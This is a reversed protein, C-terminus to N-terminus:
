FSKGSLLLKNDFTYNVRGFVSFMKELDKYSGTKPGDLAADLQEFYQGGGMMLVNNKTGWLRTYYIDSFSTGAVAAIDHKGFKKNFELTNDYVMASSRAMNKNLSSPDLPQNYSWNGEKRLSMHQDSSQDFGVNFRYKIMKNFELEAFVNGRVRLNENKVEELHEKAIPNVGFTVDRTGSGYGFGGPNSEDYVPITPLMRYVDIVPNTSLEDVKYNSLIINEGIRVTVKDGFDRHASTNSRLAVRNSSTGITTGSNSQYNGSLFYTGSKGGGSLSLNYDQLIGTKFTEDQWDTNADFHNAPTRNANAFALDNLAIWQDRDTLNYRPLWQMTTKASVDIKMDGEVGKKTTIIIVGNAARSGYIAAASADKLVQISEIDNFNFDRNAGGVIGDVVYLPQSSGFTSTGRIEVMGEAGPNGSTRVSVGPLTALADAVTGTVVKNKLADPKLVSVAGTLDAKRVSQYGIVVVEDLDRDNEKLTVNLPDEGKYVVELSELGVFSYVLIQNRDVEISYNGDFDTTAGKSSNKIQINVGPLPANTEDVVKGKVIQQAYMSLTCVSVFLFLVKRRM